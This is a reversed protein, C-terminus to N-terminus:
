LDVLGLRAAKSVAHTKNNAGLKQMAHRIHTQVTEEGIKLIDSTDTVTLGRGAWSLVDRERDTLFAGSSKDNSTDTFVSKGRFADGAIQIARHTWYFLILDIEYRKESEVMFSMRAAEDKWFLGNVTSYLRGQYDVFHHPFVYGDKFGHDQAAEMLIHAGLKRKGQRPPMQLNSWKFAINTRRAFSVCPDIHVFGNSKYEEIWKTNTTSLNYPEDLHPRGVDVFSFCAFGFNEIAAQLRDRLELVTTADEISQITESLKM